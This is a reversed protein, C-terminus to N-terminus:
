TTTKERAREKHEACYSSGLVVPHGCVMMDAGVADGVPWRCQNARADPLRVSAFTGDDTVTKPVPRVPLPRTLKLRGMKNRVSSSTIQVGFIRTLHGAVLRNTLKPNAILERLKTVMADTWQIM